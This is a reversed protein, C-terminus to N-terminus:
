MRARSVAPCNSDEAGHTDSLNERQSKCRSTGKADRMGLLLCAKLEAHTGEAMLMMLLFLSVTGLFLLVEFVEPVLSRGVGGVHPEDQEGKM